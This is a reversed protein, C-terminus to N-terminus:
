RSKKNRRCEALLLALGLLSIVGLPILKLIDDAKNSATDEWKAYIEIDETIPQTVDFPEGTDQIYWGAFRMEETDAFTWLDTLCEGKPVAWHAYNVGFGSDARVICYDAGSWYDELFTLRQRLYQRIQDTNQEADPSIGWRLGNMKVAAATDNAYAPIGQTLLEQLQPAFLEAYLERVREMFAPKRCLAYFWPLKANANADLRDAWLTAPNQLQWAFDSGIATDYDWVPGAYVKGDKYYYYHSNAGADYNGFIEEILYKKCWSDLDILELWSCGTVPDIGDAALISNEVSQMVSEAFDADEAYHIRLAQRADTVFHDYQQAEMRAQPEVSLLFRGDDTLDVRQSHVENRESLLYLGAYAGNLYLDVWEASPSYDLGVGSAFDFIIKNNLNTSDMANSLLIWRQASGMSLLNQETQLNLSYSKKEANKWSGNGRGKLENEAGCHLMAGSADYLRVSVTEGNGKQQHIYDMSGSQTDIYMAAVPSSRLFTLTNQYTKGWARYRIEYPIGTEFAACSTEEGLLDGNLSVATDTHKLLRVQALDAYGPLFAYYAGAENQWLSLEERDGGSSVAVSLPLEGSGDATFVCLLLVAILLAASALYLITRQKTM